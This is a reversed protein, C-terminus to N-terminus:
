ALRLVGDLLADLPVHGVGGRQLRRQLEDDVFLHVADFPRPVDDLLLDIETLKRQERAEAREHDVTGFRTMTLWSWREGPTTNSSAVCGFPLPQDRRADDREAARPDLEGDVDVVDDVDVDVLLLLERGRRQQAREAVPLVAVDQPEEEADTVEVERLLSLAAHFRALDDAGDDGLVDRERHPRPGSAGL